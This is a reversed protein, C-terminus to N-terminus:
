VQQERDANRQPAETKDLLGIIMRIGNTTVTINQVVGSYDSNVSFCVPM